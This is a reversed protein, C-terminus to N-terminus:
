DAYAKVLLVVAATHALARLTIGHDLRLQAAEGPNLRGLAVMSGGSEPGYTVYNTPDTNILVIYGLTTLSSLDIVTGGATTPISPTASYIQGPSTNQAVSLQATPVSDVLSGNVLNTGYTILLSM